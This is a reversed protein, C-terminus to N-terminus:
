YGKVIDRLNFSMSFLVFVGWSEYFTFSEYHQGFVVLGIMILIQIVMVLLARM